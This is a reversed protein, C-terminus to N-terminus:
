KLESLELLFHQTSLMYKTVSLTGEAGGEACGVRTGVGAGDVALGVLVVGTM